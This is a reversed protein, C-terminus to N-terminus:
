LAPFSWTTKLILGQVPCAYHLSLAKICYELADNKMNFQMQISGDM